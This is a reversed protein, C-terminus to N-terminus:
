GAGGAIATLHRRVVAPADPHESVGLDDLIGRIADALLTAEAERIKVLREAVGAEVCLKSFRALREREADYMVVLIHRAGDGLHDQGVIGGADGLLDLPGHAQNLEAVRARLFAVNGAAEWVQGLLAELPDVEIPLGLRGCEEVVQEYALRRDAAKRVQPAAGGHMHCVTGGQIAARRCRNGSRKSVATCRRDDPIAM